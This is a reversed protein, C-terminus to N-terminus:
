RTWSSRITRPVGCPCVSRTTPVPSNSTSMWTGAGRAGRPAGRADALGHQCRCDPNRGGVAGCARGPHTRHGGGGLRGGEVPFPPLGRQSLWGRAGGHCGAGGPFDGPLARLGRGRGRGPAQGRVTRCGEGVPGLLGHGGRVECVSSGEADPGHTPQARGPRAPRSGAAVTGLERLGARAGNAYAPLYFPGLPCVEGWGTLGADTHVGVVTTDFVAVSKGESWNYSGEHLPLDVQHVSLGTIQM